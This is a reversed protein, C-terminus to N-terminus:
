FNIFSTQTTSRCVNCFFLQCYRTKDTLRHFTHYHHLLAAKDDINDYKFQNWIFRHHCWRKSFKNINQGIYQKHCLRCTAVYIGYNSCDLTQKLAFIKGNAATITSTQHVMSKYHNFHGCFACKKCLQDLFIGQGTNKPTSHAVKKYNTVMSALTPPRKYMVTAQVLSKEKATLQLLNSVTSAWILMPDTIKNKNLPKPGFRDTWTKALNIIKEVVKQNFYSHICKKKLREVDKLYLENTENLRRLRDSESFVLFKFICLSHYSNGNLFLRKTATEKIFSHTFFEFENSNDIMHLVNLFELSKGTENTSVKRFTLKLEYEMCTNTLAQEIKETLANGYSLWIIDDIFRKCLQAQNLTNSIKLMIFYMSINALSVSNNDGTIIGQKQIYFKNTYQIIISNLCHM